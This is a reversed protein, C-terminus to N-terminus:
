KSKDKILYEIYVRGRIERDKPNIEVSSVSNMMLAKTELRPVYSPKIELKDSVSNISVLKVNLEKAMLRAKAKANKLSEKLCDNKLKHSLGKSFKFAINSVELNNKAFLSLSEAIKTFDKTEVELNLSVEYGMFVKSRKIYEYRPYINFNKTHIKIDKMDLIQSKLIEQVTSVKKEALRAEKDIAKIQGQAIAIDPKGSVVCEGTVSLTGGFIYFPYLLCLIALKKM